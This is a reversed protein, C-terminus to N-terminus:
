AFAACFLDLKTSYSKAKVVDKIEVARMMPYVFNDFIIDWMPAGYQAKFTEIQKTDKFVSTVHDRMQQGKGNFEM